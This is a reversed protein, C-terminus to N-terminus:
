HGLSREAIVLLIANFTAHLGISAWLSKRQEFVWGLVLAVPLRAAAAVVAVGLAASFTSGTQDIAHVLAFLIASRIIAARVPAMRLWATLTFGRFFLEEYLPAIVAGALLNIALGGASGTPPLPSAPEQGIVTVLGLVVVGTVVIVPVAFVAGWALDRLAAADPRRVGMDHWSLAGPGVVMLRLIGVVVVAQISVGLLAVAPGTLDLGAVRFPTAIAVAALYWGAVVALFTVIPSPGAYPLGAHRREIAQSGGLLVLGPLVLALGAIFLLAAALNQGSLLGVFAASGGILTAIWGAVFLGPAHRGEITFRFLGLARATSAAVATSSGPADAPGSAALVETGNSARGSPGDPVSPPETM